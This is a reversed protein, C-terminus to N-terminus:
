YLYYSFTSINHLSYKSREALGASPKPGCITKGPFAPKERRITIWICWLKCLPQKPVSLM